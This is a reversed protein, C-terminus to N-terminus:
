GMMAHLFKPSHPRIFKRRISYIQNPLSHFKSIINDIVLMKSISGKSISKKLSLYGAKSFFREVFSAELCYLIFIFVPVEYNPYVQQHCAEFSEFHDSLVSARARGYGKM